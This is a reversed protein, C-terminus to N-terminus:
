KTKITKNVVFYPDNDLDDSLGPYFAASNNDTHIEFYYQISFRKACYEGPIVGEFDNGTQEMVLSQWQEAQNVHRYFLKVKQKEGAISIHIKLPHGTL